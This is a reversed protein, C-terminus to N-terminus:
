ADTSAFPGPLMYMSHARSFGSARRVSNEINIPQAVACWCKLCRSMRYRPTMEQRPAQFLIVRVSWCVCSREQIGHHEGKTVVVNLKENMQYPYLFDQQESHVILRRFAPM